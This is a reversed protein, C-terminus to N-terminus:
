SHRARHSAILDIAAGALSEADVVWGWIEQESWRVQTFPHSVLGKWRDPKTAGHLVEGDVTVQHGDYMGHVAISRRRHLAEYERLVDGFKPDVDSATRLADALAEGSSAWATRTTRDEDGLAAGVADAVLYEVDAMRLVLEGILWRYRDGPRPLKEIIPHPPRRREPV